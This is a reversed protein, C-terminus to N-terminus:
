KEVTREILDQLKRGPLIKGERNVGIAYVNNHERFAALKDADSLDPFLNNSTNICVASYLTHTKVGGYVNFSNYHQLTTGDEKLTPPAIDEGDLGFDNKQVAWGVNDSTIFNYDDRNHHNAFYIECLGDLSERLSDYDYRCLNNACVFNLNQHCNMETSCGTGDAYAVNIQNSRMQIANNGAINCNNNKINMYEALNNCFFDARPTGGTAEISFIAADLLGNNIDYPEGNTLSEVARVFSNYAKRAKVEPQDPSAMFLIPIIIAVIIGIITFVIMLEALTFAKYKNLFM